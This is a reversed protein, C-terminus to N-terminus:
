FQLGTKEKVLQMKEMARARAKQGGTKLIDKVYDPNKAIEERKQRMPTIFNIMNQTLIDKSEKYGIEGNKYRSEITQLEETSSFLKHLAFINDSEPDKAENPTKSDTVIKAVLSKIEDDKAFLPIHNNYSKSMKQGDIGPVVAVTDLIYSEPLTFTEGFIRNFKEAIDRAYEVHQKQDQGVPVLNADQMLIDAAMLIPYDFIGVNIDKNKAEADKFAHARMLYPMTTLCNFIWTLETVEPVDSQKFLTVKNPDLGIALLDIALDLSFSRMLSGDQVTTLAHYDPIFIFSNYEEQFTVWQKLAGFYNGIHPRGTPKIGSLLIKKNDM